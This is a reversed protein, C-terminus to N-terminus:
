DWTLWTVHTIHASKPSKAGIVSFLSLNAVSRTDDKGYDRLRLERGLELWGMIIAVQSFLRFHM